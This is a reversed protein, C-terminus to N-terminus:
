EVRGSRSASDYTGQTPERPGSDWLPITVELQKLHPGRSLILREAVYTAIHRLQPCPRIGTLVMAFHSAAAIQVRVKLVRLKSAFPPLACGGAAWDPLQKMLDSGTYPGSPTVHCRVWNCELSELNPIGHLIQAFEGFSRFTIFYLEMHSVAKFSSLFAPFRPHLPIYPLVKTNPPVRGRTETEPFFGTFFRLAYIRQLNPMKRAFIPFFRPFISATTHLYPGNLVVEYIYGRLHQSADLLESLRDFTISSLQIRCFIARQSRVRWDRCVLACSRLTPIDYSHPVPPEGTSLMDIINECVEVPIHVATWRPQLFEALRAGTLLERRMRRLPALRQACTSSTRTPSPLHAKSPHVLTAISYPHCPM